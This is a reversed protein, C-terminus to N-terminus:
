ALALRTSNALLCHFSRVSLHFEEGRSTSKVDKEAGRSSTSRRRGAPSIVDSNGSVFFIRCEISSSVLVGNIRGVSREETLNLEGVNDVSRDERCFKINCVLELGAVVVIHGKLM